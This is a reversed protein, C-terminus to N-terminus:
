AVRIGLPDFPALRGGYLVHIGAALTRLAHILGTEVRVWELLRVIPALLMSLLLAMIIPILIPSAFYLFYFMLLAFIGVIAGSQLRGGAEVPAPAGPTEDVAVDSAWADTMSQRWAKLSQLLKPVHLLDKRRASPSPTMWGREVSLRYM